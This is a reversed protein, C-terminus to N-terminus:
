LRENGRKFAAAMFIVPQILVILITIGCLVAMLPSNALKLHTM